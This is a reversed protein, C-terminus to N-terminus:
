IPYITNPNKLHKLPYKYKFTMVMQESTQLVSALIYIPFNGKRTPPKSGNGAGGPLSGVSLRAGNHRLAGKQVPTDVYATGSRSSCLVSVDPTRDFLSSVSTEDTFVVSIGVSSQSSAFATFSFMMLFGTYM